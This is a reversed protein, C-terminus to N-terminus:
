AKVLEEAAPTLYLPGSAAVRGDPLNEAALRAQVPKLRPSATSRSAATEVISTHRVVPRVRSNAVQLNM